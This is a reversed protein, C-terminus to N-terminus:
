HFMVLLMISRLMPHGYVYRFGSLVNYRLGRGHEVVGTSRTRIRLIFLVGIGYSVTCGFFIWELGVKDVIPAILGPGILRTAYYGANVLIYANPLAKEPVLNAALSEMAGMHVARASGNIFALLLIHWPQVVGTLVLIALTMSHVLSIAYALALIDRRVFRDILYGAIVPVVFWPLMAVLFIAGVWTSSGTLNFMLWGEAAGMAWSASEGSIHGYWMVRYDRHALAPLFREVPNRSSTEM